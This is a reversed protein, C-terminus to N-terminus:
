GPLAWCQLVSGHSLRLGGVYRPVPTAIRLNQTKGQKKSEWEWAPICLGSLCTQLFATTYRMRVTRGLAEQGELGEGRKGAEM